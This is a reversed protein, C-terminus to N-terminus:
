TIICEETLHTREGGLPITYLDVYKAINKELWRSEAKSRMEDSVKMYANRSKLMSRLQDIMEPGTKFRYPANAYTPLDQCAIPIGYCCAEAYKLDSKAKNFTNDALPAVMANVNLSNIMYPFEMIPRWEHFEIAGNQVLHKLTLPFAGVFVWQFESCTKAIVGAVHSFDDKYGTRNEVDIHAGSGAYLIRPRKKKGACYKNYNRAITERNYFRDMWFRPPYNPIVTVNKNGTKDMYYDKMFQCTVTIEDCMAMIEQGCRRVEPNTFATKFKNYDPIDEHFMIDDIEFLLRSGVKDAIQRLLKAFELQNPSAQRQIRISKTGEYYRPDTIMCTTGQVIAKNYINIVNEPWIMRWHGCGSYDAYYQVARKMGNEPPQPVKQQQPQIVSANAHGFRSSQGAFPNGFQAPGQLM